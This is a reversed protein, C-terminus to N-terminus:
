NYFHYNNYLYLDMHKIKNNEVIGSVTANTRFIPCMKDNNYFVNILFKDIDSNSELYNKIAKSAFVVDVNANFKKRYKKAELLMTLALDLAYLKNMYSFEIWSHEYKENNLNIYGRCVKDNDNFLISILSSKQYCWGEFEHNLTMKLIPSTDISEIGVNVKSLIDRVYLYADSYIFNSQYIDVLNNTQLNIMNLVFDDGFNLVM